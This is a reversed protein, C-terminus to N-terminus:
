EGDILIIRSIGLGLLRNDSSEPNLDCPRTPHKVRLTVRLRKGAEVAPVIGEAVFLRGDQCQRLRLRKENVQIELKQWCEARIMHLAECRLKRKGGTAPLLDLWCDEQATWAFHQKGDREPLHWGLGPAPRDFEFADGLQLTQEWRDSPEGQPPEQYANFGMEDQGCLPICPFADDTKVLPITIRVGIGIRRNRSRNPHSGHVTRENFLVFEGPELELPVAASADFEASDASMGNFRSSNNPNTNRVPPIIKRHSGPIVEVCGNKATAATIAVWATMSLMPELNWNYLDQHWPYVDVRHGQTPAKDFIASSWLILNSGFLSRVKAQINPASCVRYVTESDLHRCHTPYPSYASPVPLVKETLTKRIESMDEPAFARFPGLFGQQRFATIDASTLSSTTM